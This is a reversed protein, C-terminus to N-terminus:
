RHTNTNTAKSQQQELSHGNFTDVETRGLRHHHCSLCTKLQNCATVFCKRTCWEQEEWSSLDLQQQQEEEKCLEEECENMAVGNGTCQEGAVLLLLMM